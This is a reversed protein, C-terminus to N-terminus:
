EILVLLFMNFLDQIEQLLFFSLCSLNNKSAQSTNECFCKVFFLLKGNLIEEIFTTFDALERHIQDGKSFLGKIFFKM